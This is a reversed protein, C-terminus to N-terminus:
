CLPDCIFTLNCSVHQLVHIYKSCNLIFGYYFVCTFIFREIVQLYRNRNPKPPTSFTLIDPISTWDNQGPGHMVTAHLRDWNSSKKGTLSDINLKLILVADILKPEFDILEPAGNHAMIIELGQRKLEFDKIIEVTAYGVISRYVASWKCAKEERLLEAKKKLRM